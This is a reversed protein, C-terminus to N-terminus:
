QIRSMSICSICLLLDNQFVIKYLPILFYHRFVEMVLLVYLLNYFVDQKQTLEKQIAYKNKRRRCRLSTTLRIILLLLCCYYMIKILM